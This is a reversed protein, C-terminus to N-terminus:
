ILQVHLYPFLSYQTSFLQSVHKAIFGSAQLNQITQKRAERANVVQERPTTGICQRHRTQGQTISNPPTTRTHRVPTGRKRAQSNGRFYQDGMFGSTEGVSAGNNLDTKYENDQPRSTTVACEFNRYFELKFKTQKEWSTM